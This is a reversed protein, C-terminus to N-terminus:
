RGKARIEEAVAESNERRRSVFIVSNGADALGLSMAKGLGRSGGTVLAVKGTLDITHMVM